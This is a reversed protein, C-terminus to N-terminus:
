HVQRSSEPPWLRSDSLVQLPVRANSPSWAISQGRKVFPFASSLCGTVKDPDYKRILSLGKLEGIPNERPNYKINGLLYFTVKSEGKQLQLSM